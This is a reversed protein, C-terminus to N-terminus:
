KKHLDITAQLGKGREYLGVWGRRPEAVYFRGLVDLAPTESVIVEGTQLDTAATRQLRDNPNRGAHRVIVFSPDTAPFLAGAPLVPKSVVRGSPFEMLMATVHGNKANILDSVLLRDPPVFTFFRRRDPNEDLATAVASDALVNLRGKLAVPSNLHLDWAFARGSWWERPDRDLGYGETTYHLQLAAVFYRGDPSFAVRVSGSDPPVTPLRNGNYSLADNPGFGDKRLITSGSATDVLWLTHFLDNCALFSDNPSLEETECAHTPLEHTDTRTGGAVSWNELSAVSNALKIQAADVRTGGRLFTISRSDPTFQAHIADQAPIRFLVSLPTVSLVTINSADQALIYSGNRSFRLKRIADSPLPQSRGAATLVTTLLALAAIKRRVVAGKM